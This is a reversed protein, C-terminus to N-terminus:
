IMINVSPSEYSLTASLMIKNPSPVYYLERTVSLLLPNGVLFGKDGESACASLSAQSLFTSM